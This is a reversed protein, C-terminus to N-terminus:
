VDRKRILIKGEYIWRSALEQGRRIQKLAFEINRQRGDVEIPCQYNNEPWIEPDPLEASAENLQTLNPIFKPTQSSRAMNSQSSKRSRNPQPNLKQSPM